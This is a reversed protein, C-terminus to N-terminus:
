YTNQILFTFGEYTSLLLTFRELSKVIGIVIQSRFIRSVRDERTIVLQTTLNLRHGRISSCMTRGRRTPVSNSLREYTSM